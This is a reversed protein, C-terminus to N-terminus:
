LFNLYSFSWFHGSTPVFFLCRTDTTPEPLNTTFPLHSSLPFHSWFLPKTLIPSKLVHLAYLIAKFQLKCFHLLSKQRPSHCLKKQMKKLKCTEPFHTKEMLVHFYLAPCLLLSQVLSCCSSQLPVLPLSSSHASLLHLEFPLPSSRLMYPLLSTM